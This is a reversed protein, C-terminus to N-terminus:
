PREVLPLSGLRVPAEKDNHGEFFARLVPNDPDVMSLIFVWLGSSDALRTDIETCTDRSPDHDWAVRHMHYGGLLVSGAQDM